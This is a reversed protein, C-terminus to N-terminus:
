KMMTQLKVNQVVFIDYNSVLNIFEPFNSRSKIGCVNLTGIKLESRKLYKYCKNTDSNNCAHINNM